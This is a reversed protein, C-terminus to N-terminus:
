LPYFLLQMSDVKIVWRTIIEEEMGTKTGGERESRKGKDGEREKLM